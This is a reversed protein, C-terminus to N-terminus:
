GNSSMPEHFSPDPDIKQDARAHLFGNEGYPGTNFNGMQKDVSIDAIQPGLNM